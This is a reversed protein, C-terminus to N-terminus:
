MERAREVGSQRRRGVGCSRKTEVSLSSAGERAVREQLRSLTAFIADFDAQREGHTAATMGTFGRAQVSVRRDLVAIELDTYETAYLNAPLREPHRAALEAALGEIQAAGLELLLPAAYGSARTYLETRATRGSVRLLFGGGEDPPAALEPKRHLMVALTEPALEGRSIKELGDTLSEAEVGSHAPEECIRFVSEALERLTASQEGEGFQVVEKSLGDLSLRVRCTVRAAAATHPPGPEPVELEGPEGYSPQLGAFDAKQLAALLSSIETPSLSFQRRREWIGVGSGFAEVSPMRDDRSCEVALKLHDRRQPEAIAAALAARVAAAPPSLAQEGAGGRHPPTGPEAPQAASGPGSASRRGIACGLLVVALAAAPVVVLRM